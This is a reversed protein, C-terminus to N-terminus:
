PRPTAGASPRQAPGITNAAATSPEGTIAHVGRKTRESANRARTPVAAVVTAHNASHAGCALSSVNVAPREQSRDKTDPQGGDCQALPRASPGGDPEEAHQRGHPDGKSWRAPGGRVRRSDAGGAPSGRWRRDCSCRTPGPCPATFIRGRPRTKDPNKSGWGSRNGVGRPAGDFMFVRFRGPLSPSEVHRRHCLGGVPHAPEATPAAHDASHLRDPGQGPHM